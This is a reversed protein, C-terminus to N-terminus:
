ANDIQALRRYLTQESKGTMERWRNRREDRTLNSASIEKAIALEQAKQDARYQHTRAEKLIIPREKIRSSVLDHWHCGSQCERYQLYERFGNTLLRLDMSRNLGRCQTIAFECVEMCESSDMVDPGDRFGNLSIKRMLSVLELDSVTLQIYAIRTKIAELEPLPPFPRNGTMIIGGTFVFSHEQKYTTWTVLRECAGNGTRESQSWLASRLVGRAGSERFMQEMDELVHIEDPFQRLTNFLGRGTIRSNFLKFPIQLRDLEKLITYSKGCGGPGFVYCGQSRGSAVSSAVDRILQLKTEFSDLHRKDGPTLDVASSVYSGPHESDDAFQEVNGETPASLTTKDTKKRAKTKEAMGNRNAIM